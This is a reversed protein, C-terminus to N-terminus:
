LERVAIRITREEDEGSALTIRNVVLYDTNDTGGSLRVSTKKGSIASGELVLGPPVTWQSVSISDAAALADQWDLPFSRDAGPDKIFDKVAM